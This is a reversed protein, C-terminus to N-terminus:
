FCFKKKTLPIKIMLPLDVPENGAPCDGITEVVGGDLQVLYKEGALLPMPLQIKFHSGVDPFTVFESSSVDFTYVLRQNAAYVIRVSRSTDARSGMRDITVTVINNRDVSAALPLPVPVNTAFTICRQESPFGINTMVAFCFLERERSQPSATFQVDFFYDTPSGPVPQVPSMTLGSPSITNVSTISQSPDAVSATIRTTFMQGQSVAVCSGGPLVDSAFSPGNSCPGLSRVDLIYQLSVSSLPTTSSSDLYDEIQMAVAYLGQVTPTWQFSCTDQDLTAGPLGSCVSGCESFGTAYRCRVVDGDSDSVPSDFSTYESCIQIVNRFLSKYFKRTFTTAM